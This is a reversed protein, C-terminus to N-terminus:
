RPSTAPWRRTAKPRSGPAKAAPEEHRRGRGRAPRGPPSAIVGWNRGSGYLGHAIVLTPAEATSSAPHRITTLMPNGIGFAGQPGSRNFMAPFTKLTQLRNRLPNSHTRHRDLLHRIPHRLKQFFLSPRPPRSREALSFRASRVSGFLHAVPAPAPSTPGSPASDSAAPDPRCPRPSRPRRHRRPMEDRDIRHPPPPIQKGAHDARDVEPPAPAPPRTTRSGRRARTNRPAARPAKAAQM